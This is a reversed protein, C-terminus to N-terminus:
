APTGAENRSENNKHLDIYADILAVTDKWDLVDTVTLNLVFSELMGYLHSAATDPDPVHLEGAKDADILLRNLLFKMGYTHRRVKRRVDVGELKQSFVFDLVVTLFVRNDSLMKSTTHLIRTIKQVPSVDPRDMIKIIIANLKGAGQKIAYDFIQEKNEFYKYILTRSIGCRDAIKQYTVGAFGKEAFLAFACELILTRRKDHDVQNM